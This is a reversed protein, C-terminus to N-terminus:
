KQTSSPPQQNAQGLAGDAAPPPPLIAAYLRMLDRTQASNEAQMQLVAALTMDTGQQKQAVQAIIERTEADKENRAEERQRAEADAIAQKAGNEVLVQRVSM